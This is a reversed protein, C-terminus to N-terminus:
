WHTSGDSPAQRTRELIRAELAPTLTTAKSGKHRSFLGALREAECRGSARKTLEVREAKTLKM